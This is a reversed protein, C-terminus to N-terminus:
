LSVTYHRRSLRFWILEPRGSAPAFLPSCLPWRAEHLYVRVRTCLRTRAHVRAYLSTRVMCGLKVNLTSQPRGTFIFLWNYWRRYVCRAAYHGPVRSRFIKRLPKCVRSAFVSTTSWTAFTFKREITRRWGSISFCGNFNNLERINNGYIVEELQVYTGEFLFQKRKKSASCKQFTRM